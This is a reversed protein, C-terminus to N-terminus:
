RRCDDNMSQCTQPLSGCTYSPCLLSGGGVQDLSQELGTLTERNLRLKKAQKKMLHGGYIRGRQLLQPEPVIVAQEGVVRSALPRTRAGGLNSARVFFRVRRERAPVPAPEEL